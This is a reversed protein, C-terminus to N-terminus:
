VHEPEATKCKSQCSPILCIIVTIVLCGLLSMGSLKSFLYPQALLMALCGGMMLHSAFYLRGFLRSQRNVLSMVALVLLAALFLSQMLGARADAVLLQDKLADTESQRQQDFELLAVTSVDTQALLQRSKEIDDLRAQILPENPFLADYRQLNINGLGWPGIGLGAVLGLLLLGIGAIM